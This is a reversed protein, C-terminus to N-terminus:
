LFQGELAIMQSFFCTARMSKSLHVLHRVQMMFQLNPAMRYSRNGTPGAPPYPRQFLTSLVWHSFTEITVRVMSPTSTFTSRPVLMISAAWFAPTRM